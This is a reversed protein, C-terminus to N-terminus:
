QKRLLHKVKSKLNLRSLVGGATKSTESFLRYTNLAIFAYPRRRFLWILAESTADNALFQKYDAYGGFDCIHPPDNKFLDKLALLQQVIGVGLKSWSPDYGVELGFFTRNYQYAVQFACPVGGCKLLYSRLWGQQAAWKLWNKLQEPNRIGIGLVRFQYTKRSIEAAAAVFSGVESEKTVKVLEVEGKDGLRKLQRSINNRSKSSFKQMYDSYSGRVRIFPHPLLGRVSYSYFHKKILPSDRLYCWFFSDSKIGTMYIADFELALLQQFLQNHPSEESPLNPNNGLLRFMKLPVKLVTFDGLTCDLRHHYFELPVAGMIRADREFLYARINAKEIECRAQLWQPDCVISHDQFLANCEKWAPIMSSLNQDMRVERIQYAPQTVSESIPDLINVSVVAM